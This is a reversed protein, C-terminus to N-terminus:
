MEGIQTAAIEITIEEGARHEEEVSRVTKWVFHSENNALRSWVLVTVPTAPFDRSHFDRYLRYPVHKEM